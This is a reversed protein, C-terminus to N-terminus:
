YGIGVNTVVKDIKPISPSDDSLIINVLAVVDSIDVSSDGNVDASSNEDTGDSLIINVLGVVDSIDVDGDGNVDGVLSAGYGMQFFARCSGITINSGPHHLKNDTGLYLKSNDGENGLNVPNYSGTFSVAGDNSSVVTPAVNKITVGAFIPNKIDPDSIFKPLVLNGSVEWNSGLTEALETTSMDSADIGENELISAKAVANYYCNTLNGRVDGSVFIHPNYDSVTLELATPFYLCNTLNATAGNQTFGVMSGGSCATIDYTVTGTFLCDTMNLTANTSVRAVFAGGDVWDNELTSVIDVSSWCNRIISSGYVLAVFTAPRHLSSTITGTVKVNQITAGDIIYFLALGDAGGSLKVSITHGNGDFTGKFTGVVMTNVNIDASLSVVQGEYSTGNNVNQTFTNWEAESSIFLDTKKKVIYPKGAEISTADKFNLYLTGNELGTKHSDVATSTDLEKVTFGELPTGALSPLSFPLCLTTWSGDTLFTREALEVTGKENEFYAVAKTNDANAELRITLDGVFTVNVIGEFEKWEDADYVHCLPKQNRNFDDCRYEDWTLQNPLTHCYVDTVSTCGYFADRGINTVSNPITVSTLGSCSDFAREGISTVGNGMTVSALDLCCWFAKQGITTVSNPITVSTLGSCGDFANQGITTVSNPIITNKCGAILTNSATEIIANCNNRSDYVPNGSEVVISTCGTCEAFAGSRITTVSNPITVSTLGDCDRFADEGITTVSNPIEVSTLSSCSSFADGGITTVSNPIEVSKLSSCGIFASAGISTVGHGITVSTLGTCDRFAGEGITTVSNGITVSTLGDCWSFASAGISTVSNGITVSTLGDCDEFASQGISTVSNPITVSTLGSCYAFASQGITTVQYHTGKGSSESWVENLDISGQTNRDIADSSIEINTGDITGEIPIWSVTEDEATVKVYATDAWASHSSVFFLAIFAFFVYKKM